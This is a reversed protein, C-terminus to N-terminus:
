ACGCAAIANGQAWARSIRYNVDARELRLFAARPLTAHFAVAEAEVGVDTARAAFALLKFPQAAIDGGRRDRVLAQLQAVAALDHVFEFCRISVAGRVHDHRRLLPHLAERGKYGPGSQM